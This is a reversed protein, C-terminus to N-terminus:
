DAGAVNRFPSFTQPGTDYPDRPTLMLLRRDGDRRIFAFGFRPEAEIQWGESSLREIAMSMAGPLDAGPELLHSEILQWQLGFVAVWRPTTAKAYVQHRYHAM